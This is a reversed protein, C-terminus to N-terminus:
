QEEPLRAGCYPCFKIVIVTEGVCLYWRKRVLLIHTFKYNPNKVSELFKIGEQIDVCDHSGHLEPDAEAIIEFKEM